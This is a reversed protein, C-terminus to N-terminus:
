AAAGHETHPASHRDDAPLILLDELRLPLGNAAFFDIVGPVHQLPIRNLWYTSLTTESLGLHAALDAVGKGIQRLRERTRSEAKAHPFAGDLEMDWGPIRGSASVAGVFSMLDDSPAFWERRLRDAHFKHHLYAETLFGGPATALIRLDFPVWDMVQRLRRAPDGSTGIKVPGGDVGQIFYVFSPAKM